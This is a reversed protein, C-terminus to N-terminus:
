GTMIVNRSRDREASSRVRKRAINGFAVFDQFPTSQPESPYLIRPALRTPRRTPARQHQRIAVPFHTCPRRTGHLAATARALTSRTRPTCAYGLERLRAPLQRQTTADPRRQFAARHVAPVTGPRSPTPRGSSRGRREARLGHAGSVRTLAPVVHESRRPRGHHKRRGRISQRAHARSRARGSGTGSSRAEPGAAGGGGNDRKGWGDSGTCKQLGPGDDCWCCRGRNRYSPGPPPPWKGRGARSWWRQLARFVRTSWRLADNIDTKLATPGSWPPPFSIRDDAM